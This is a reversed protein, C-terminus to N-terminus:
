GKCKKNIIEGAQEDTFGSNKLSKATIISKAFMRGNVIIRDKTVTIELPGTIAKNYKSTQTTNEYVAVIQGDTVEDVKMMGNDIISQKAESYFENARFSDGFANIAKYIPYRRGKKDETFIPDGDVDKVLKFLGKNRYSYDGQKRMRNREARSISM